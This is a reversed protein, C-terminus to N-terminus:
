EEEQQAYDYAYLKELITPFDAEEGSSLGQFQTKTIFQDSPGIRLWRKGSKEHVELHGVVDVIGCLEPAIKRSMKPFTRTVIIGSDSNKIDLLQEWANFVVTINNYILDRFLHIAERLKFAADGYERLETFEKGRRKTLSLIICQELESINDVVVYKFPHKETRLYKYLEDLKDLNDANINIAVHGTGLLPGLGAETNIILTEGPPLTSALTTKGVGPDAYIVFAIGRDITNGVKTFEM